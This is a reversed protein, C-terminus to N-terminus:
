DGLHTSPFVWLAALAPALLLGAYSLLYAAAGALGTEVDEIAAGGLVGTALRYTEVGYLSQGLSELLAVLLTATLAVSM